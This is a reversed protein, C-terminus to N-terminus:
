AVFVGAVTRQNGARMRRLIGLATVGGKPVIRTRVRFISLLQHLNVVHPVRNVM